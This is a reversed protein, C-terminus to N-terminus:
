AAAAGGPDANGDARKGVPRAAFRTEGDGNGVVSGADGIGGDQQADALIAPGVVQDAALVGGAETEGAQRAAAARDGRARPRRVAMGQRAPADFERRFMEQALRLGLDVGIVARRERVPRRYRELGGFGGGRDPMGGLVGGPMVRQRDEELSSRAGFGAPFLEVAPGEKVARDMGLRPAAEGEADEPVAMAAVVVGIEIEEAEGHREGQGRDLADM